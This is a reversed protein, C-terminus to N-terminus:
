PSGGQPLDTAAPRVEGDRIVSRRIFWPRRKVEEFIKSIYEGILAVAFLNGAGFFLVVVVLTTFGRPAASPYFIVGIVQLAALLCAVAFLASGVATLINLPTNSFSLIGKKAWGINKWLNNTSRGFMREPRVYDVGTQRFGAFARVGRLFLDREPFQLLARVVRKDMLAYDGADHPIKIYSFYDFVRYFAKYAFQMFLTAERKVRRGYVIDYGEQWRAVFQEILEPPDQLDGDLLVCANKSAIEMGSRFASQSGFNRSHTVGVVRRDNRSISRIVEETDDPSCDNVFIIEFDKNMKTFVAKLREYMIPIALDDKYCAIVASVSYTTDIGFKKSSQLYRPKDPLARYWDATAGLGDRFDTRPEWGIRARAKETNAYWDEVDWARDPMTFAPEAEIAFLDRAASAVDGITTKRGTGINFSDGYDAPKLNLAADVFAETVDDTFVFDRSVAPHVFPPYAADLGHRILNPILRSADELPGYVSYLRLNACPFRKRKGHYHILNAAAVKSVAYDSNPALPADESPGAANDGYESSSGAQAFFAVSRAELRPLLRTLFAFNTRYILQSDTEFSYAGYAVFNFVTRPRVRDLLADLDSDILLDVVRVNEEPLDELRWAPTRTTTGYVDRRVAFIARMANAGVFGSAGLLLIPGQLRAVKEALPTRPSIPAPTPTPEPEPM